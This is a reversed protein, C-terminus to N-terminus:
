FGMGKWSSVMQLNLVPAFLNLIDSEIIPTVNLSCPLDFVLHLDYQLFVDPYIWFEM